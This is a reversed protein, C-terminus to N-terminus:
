ALKLAKTRKAVTRWMHDLYRQAKVAGALSTKGRVMVIPKKPKWSKTIGSKTMTYIRGDSTMSFPWGNADWSKVVRKGAIDGLPSTGGFLDPRTKASVYKGNEDKVKPTWPAIMGEGDASEWPFATGAAQLALYAGGAIALAGGVLPVGALTKVLGVGGVAGIVNEAPSDGPKVHSTDMAAGGNKGLTSVTLLGIPASGLAVLAPSTGISAAHGAAGGPLPAGAKPQSAAVFAPHEPSRVDGPSFVTNMQTQPVSALGSPTMVLTTERIPPPSYGPQLYAPITSKSYDGTAAIYADRSTLRDLAEQETFGPM